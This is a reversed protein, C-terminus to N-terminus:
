PLRCVALRGFPFPIPGPDASDSLKVGVKSRTCPSSWGCEVSTCRPGVLAPSSPELSVAAASDGVVKLFLVPAYSMLAPELRNVGRGGRAAGLCVMKLVM